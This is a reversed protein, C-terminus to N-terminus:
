HSSMAILLLVAPVNNAIHFFVGWWFGLNVRAYTIPCAVLGPRLCMALCYPALGWTLVSFAKLHILGFGIVSVWMALRLYKARWRDWQEDTTFHMVLWFLVAGTIITAAMVMWNSYAEFLYAALTVPLLGAWLAVVQRKLSVGLRFIIEEAIPAILLLLLVTRLLPKDKHTSVDGGFQTLKSPDIGMSNYISNVIVIIIASIIFMAIFWALALGFIKSKPMTAWDNTRNIIFKM